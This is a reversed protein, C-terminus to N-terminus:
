LPFWVQLAKKVWEVLLQSIPTDLILSSGYSLVKVKHM